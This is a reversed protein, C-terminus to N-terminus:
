HDGRDEFGSVRCKTSPPLNSEQGRRWNKLECNDATPPSRKRRALLNQLQRGQRGTGTSSRSEALLSQRLHQTLKRNKFTNM